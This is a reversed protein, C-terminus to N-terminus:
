TSIVFDRCKSYIKWFDSNQVNNSCSYAGNKHMMAYDDCTVLGDGNCDQALANYYSRLTKAACKIDLACSKWDTAGGETCRGGDIWFGRSILFPGCLSGGAVCGMDVKCFKSSAECICGLCEHTAADGSAGSLPDQCVTAAKPKQCQGIQLISQLCICLVICYNVAYGMRTTRLEITISFQFIIHHSSINLVVAKKQRRLILLLLKRGMFKWSKLHEGM